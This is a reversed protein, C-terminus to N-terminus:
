LSNVYTRIAVVEAPLLNADREWLAFAAQGLVSASTYGLQPAIRHLVEKGDCHKWLDAEARRRAYAKAAVSLLGSLKTREDAGFSTLDLVSKITGAEDTTFESWTRTKARDKAASNIEPLSKANPTAM